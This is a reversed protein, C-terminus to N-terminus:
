FISRDYFSDIRGAVGEVYRDEGLEAHPIICHKWRLNLVTLIYFVLIPFIKIENDM